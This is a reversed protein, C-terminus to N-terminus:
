TIPARTTTCHYLLLSTDMHVQTQDRPKSLPNPDLIARLHLHQESRVSNHSHCLSAAAAAIWGRAQFSWNIHWLYPGLFDLFSFFHQTISDPIKDVPFPSTMSKSLRSHDWIQHSGSVKPLSSHYTETNETILSEMSAWYVVQTDPPSGWLASAM